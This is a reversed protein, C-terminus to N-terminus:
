MVGVRVAKDYDIYDYSYGTETFAALKFDIHKTSENQRLERIIAKSEGQLGKPGFDVRVISSIPLKVFELGDKEVILEQTAKCPILMRWEHEYEWAVSKTFWLKKLFPGWTSSDDYSNLTSLDLVPRKSGYVVPWMPPMNERELVDSDFWVRIGTGNKAYHGWMLQDSIENIKSADVFCLIRNMRQQATREMVVRQFYREFHELRQEIPPLPGKQPFAMGKRVWEYRMKDRVEKRVEDRLRGKCAGMMEYPDNVDLPRVIKFEGSIISKVGYDQSLYRVLLM